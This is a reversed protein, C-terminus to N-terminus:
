NDKIIEKVQIVQQTTNITKDYKWDVQNNNVLHIATSVATAPDSASVDTTAKEEITRRRTLTVRHSM